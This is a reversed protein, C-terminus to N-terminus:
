QRFAAITKKFGSTETLLPHVRYWVIGDSEYRLISWIPLANYEALEFYNCYTECHAKALLHWKDADVSNNMAYRLNGRAKGIARRSVPFEGHSYLFTDRLLIYLTKTHGGTSAILGILQADDAFVQILTDSLAAIQQQIEGAIQRILPENLRDDANSIPQNPSNKIKSPAFLAM